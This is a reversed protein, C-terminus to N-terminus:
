RGPGTVFVVGCTDIALQPDQVATVVADLVALDLSPETGTNLRAQHIATEHARMAEAGAAAAATAAQVTQRHAVSRLAETAARDCLNLWDLDYTLDHFREPDAGLDQGTASALLERVQDNPEGQVPHWWVTELLPPFLQGLRAAAAAGASPDSVQLDDLLAEDPGVIVTFMFFTL